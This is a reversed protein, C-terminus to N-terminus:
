VKRVAGEEQKAHLRGKTIDSWCDDCVPDTEPDNAHGGECSWCAVKSCRPCVWLPSPETMMWLKWTHNKSECQKRGMKLLLLTFWYRLLRM